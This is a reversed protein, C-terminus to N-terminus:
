IDNENKEKYYKAQSEYMNQYDVCNTLLEKHTGISLIEGCSLYIIRDARQTSAVRHSIFISTKGKAISMVEEYLDMESVADLAATPEDLILIPRDHYIARALAIRAVQGGSLNVGEDELYETLPTKEQRALSNVFAWSDSLKLSVDLRKHDVPVSVSVNEALSTALIPTNQFVTSFYRMQQGSNMQKTDVGNLLIKGSTPELLGMLLMMLTTKGAGNEGVLAIHEGAKIRFNINKLIKLGSGPAFYNVNQCEITMATYQNVTKPLSAAKREFEPEILNMYNIGDSIDSNAGLLIQINRWIKYTLAELMGVLSFFFVFTSNSLLGKNIIDILCIYIIVLRISSLLLVAVDAITRQLFVKYEVTEIERQSQDIHSTMIGSYDYMRLDEAADVNAATRLLYNRKATQARAEIETQTRIRNM